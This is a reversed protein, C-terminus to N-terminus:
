SMRTEKTFGPYFLKSVAAEECHGRFSRINTVAM